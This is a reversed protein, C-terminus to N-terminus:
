NIRKLLDFIELEEESLGEKVHREGEEKLDDVFDVLDEYYNENTSNGANYRNIIEKYREVFNTRTKNEQLLKELKDEIFM